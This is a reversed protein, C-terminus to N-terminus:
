STRKAENYAFSAETIQRAPLHIYKLTISQLLIDVEQVTEKPLESLFYRFDEITKEINTLGKHRAQRNYLQITVLAEEASFDLFKLWLELTELPIPIPYETNELIRLTDKSCNLASALEKALYRKKKRIIKLLKSVPPM